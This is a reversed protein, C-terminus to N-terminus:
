NNVASIRQKKVPEPRNGFGKERKLAENLVQVASQAARLDEPNTKHGMKPDIFKIRFFQNDAMTAIAQLEERTLELKIKKM